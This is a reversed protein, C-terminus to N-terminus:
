RRIDKHLKETRLCGCSKTRGSVLNRGIIYAREGCDCRCEWVIAKWRRKECAKLVVLRGFRRGVLNIIKKKRYDENPVNARKLAANLIERSIGLERMVEVKKMGKDVIMGKVKEVYKIHRCQKTHDQHSRIQFKSLAKQPLDGSIICYVLACYNINTDVM